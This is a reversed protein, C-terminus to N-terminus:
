FIVNALRRRYEGTAPDGDGLIEFAAIMTERADEDEPARALLRELGAEPVGEALEPMAAQVREIAKLLRDADFRDAIPALLARADDYRGRAAAARAQALVDQAPDPLFQGVWTRITEEPQVGIFEGALRGDLFAKVNPISQISFAAALNPNADTDVRVLRWGADPEAALRELIPGLIRCPQCWDAWFDVVVPM